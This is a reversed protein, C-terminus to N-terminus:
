KINLPKYNKSQKRGNNKIGYFPVITNKDKFCWKFGLASKTKNSINLYILSNSCKFYEKIEKISDWEKIFNGELDYQNISTGKRKTHNGIKVKHLNNELPNCWELNEVRNDSKDGNIHNVQSKNESNPIFGQAILKHIYINKNVFGLNSKRYIKCMLYGRGNNALKLEQMSENFYKGENSIFWVRDLIKLKVLNNSVKELVYNSFSNNTQKNVCTKCSSFLEDEKKLIYHLDESKELIEVTYGNKVIDLWEKTRGNKAYARNFGKYSHSTSITGKGYYFPINNNDSHKYIYYM